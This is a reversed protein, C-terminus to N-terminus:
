EVRFVEDIGNRINEGFLFLLDEKNTQSGPSKEQILILNNQIIATAM